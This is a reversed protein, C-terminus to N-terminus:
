KLALAVAKKLAPGDAMEQFQLPETLGKATVQAKAVALELKQGVMRVAIVTVRENTPMNQFLKTTANQAVTWCAVANLRTFIVKVDTQRDAEVAFDVRRGSGGTFRDVNIWGLQTAALAYYSQAAAAENYLTDTQLQVMSNPNSNPSYDYVEGKIWTVMKYYAQRIVLEVPAKKRWGKKHQLLQRLDKDRLGITHKFTPSHLTLEYRTHEEGKLQRSQVRRMAALSFHSGKTTLKADQAYGTGGLWKASQINGDLDVQLGITLTDLLDDRGQDPTPVQGLSEKALTQQDGQGQRAYVERYIPRFNTVTTTTLITAPRARRAPPAWVQAGKRAVQWNTGQEHDQSYFVQMGPKAAQKTPMEIALPRRPHLGLPEGSASAEIQLMGASELLAGHSTTNLNGLVMDALDYYERVRLAVKGQPPTGAKTVLSHAKFHLRTGAECVLVTDRDAAFTFAQVPQPLQEALLGFSFSAQKQPLDGLPMEKALPASVEVPETAV